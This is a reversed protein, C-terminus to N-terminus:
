QAPTPTPTLQPINANPNSKVPSPVKVKPTNQLNSVNVGSINADQLPSNANNLAEQEQAARTNTEIQVKLDEFYKQATKLDASNPSNKQLLIVLQNAVLAANQLDGKDRFALSLNFYANAYDPKLNISDTFFRTALDYNKAAYYIGGVSLRLAPNLPDRQIAGSYADLSFALANQAVGTINRYISALVEWNRASRPSLVVAVRGENIAQSLLTQITKKDNDTLTGQPNDKTPGKQLALANALAFNTQAMDVRYLDIEPNIQEAKQLYQYTLTGNKNAQSLALRHYYDAMVVNITKYLVPVAAILFVIFVVVPFLDFQKNEHTLAKIGISFEMVKERIHEQSMM